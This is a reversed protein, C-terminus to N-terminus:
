GPGAGAAFAGGDAALRGSVALFDVMYTTDGFPGPSDTIFPPASSYSASSDDQGLHLESVWADYEEHSPLDVQKGSGYVAPGNDRGWEVSTVPM